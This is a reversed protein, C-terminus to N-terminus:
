GGYPCGEKGCGAQESVYVGCQACRELEVPSADQSAAEKKERQQPKKGQVGRRNLLRIGYIVAAIVAATLLIKPLSLM